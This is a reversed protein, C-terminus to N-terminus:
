FAPIPPMPPLTPNEGLRQSLQAAQALYLAALLLGGALAARRMRPGLRRLAALGLLLAGCAATLVAGQRWLAALLERTEPGALLPVGLALAASGVLPLRSVRPAALEGAAIALLALCAVSGAFAAPAPAPGDGIRLREAIWSMLVIGLSGFAGVIRWGAAGLRSRGVAALVTAALWAPLFLLLRFGAPSAHLPVLEWAVAADPRCAYHAYAALTGVALLLPLSWATRRGPNGAHGSALQWPIAVPAGLAALALFIWVADIV